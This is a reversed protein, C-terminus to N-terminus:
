GNWRKALEEDIRLEESSNYVTYPPGKAKCSNCQVFYKAETCKKSFESGRKLDNSKCFPCVRLSNQNFYHSM